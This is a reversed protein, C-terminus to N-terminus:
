AEEGRTEKKSKRDERKAKRWDYRKDYRESDRMALDRVDNAEIKMSRQGSMDTFKEEAPKISPAELVPRERLLVDFNMPWMEVADDIQDQTYFLRLCIACWIDKTEPIVEPTCVDCTPIGNSDPCYEPRSYIRHVPDLEAGACSGYWIKVVCM